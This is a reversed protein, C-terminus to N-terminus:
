KSLGIRRINVDSEVIISAGSFFNQWDSKTDRWIERNEMKLQNSAGIIDIGYDDQLVDMLDDVQSVMQEAIAQELEDIYTNRFLKDHDEFIFEAVDGESKIHIRITLLGDELSFRMNTHLESIKYPVLVGEMDAVVVSHRGKGLVWGYPTVHEEEMWGTLGYDKIVALGKVIVENDQFVINPMVGNGDNSHMETIFDSLEITKATITEQSNNVFVQSLYIGTTEEGNPVSELLSKGSAKTALLLLAKSYEPNRDFHDLVKRLNQDDELFDKGFIVVKAHDFNLRLNSKKGFNRNAEVLTRSKTTKVFKTAEGGGQSTIVPLNPITYTVELLDGLDDLALSIVYARDNMEVKDWCGTLLLGCLLIIISVKVKM